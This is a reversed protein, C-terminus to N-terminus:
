KTEKAPLIIGEYARMHLYKVGYDTQLNTLDLSAGKKGINVLITGRSFDRKLIKAHTSALGFYVNDVWGKGRGNGIFGLRIRFFAADTPSTFTREFPLWDYAGGDFKLGFAGPLKKKSKNYFRGQLGLKKYSASLARNM